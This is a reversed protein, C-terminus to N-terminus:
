KEQSSQVLQMLPTSLGYDVWRFPNIVSEIISVSDIGSRSLLGQEFSALFIFLHYTGSIVGFFICLLLSDVEFLNDKNLIAPGSLSDIMFDAPGCTSVNELSYWKHIPASFTATAKDRLNDYGYAGIGIASAYHLLALSLNFKRIFMRREQDVTKPM